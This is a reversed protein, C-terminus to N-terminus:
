LKSYEYIFSDMWVDLVSAVETFFDVDSHIEIRILSDCDRFSSVSAMFSLSYVLVILIVTFTALTLDRM